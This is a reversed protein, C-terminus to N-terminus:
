GHYGVVQYSTPTYEMIEFRNGDPDTVWLQWTRDPGMRPEGDLPVNKEKLERYTAQIDDVVLSFHQYGTLKGMDPAPDPSVSDFLEFFFGDPFELYTLWKKEGKEKFAKLMPVSDVDIGPNRKCVDALLQPFTIAFKVRCGFVKCYFDISKDVDTCHFAVHSTRIINM